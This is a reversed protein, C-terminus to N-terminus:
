SRREREWEICGLRWALSRSPDLRSRRRALAAGGHIERDIVGKKVISEMSIEAREVNTVQVAESDQEM